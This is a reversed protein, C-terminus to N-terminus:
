QNMEEKLKELHFEVRRNKFRGEATKNTALPYDEGKGYVGVVKEEPLGLEVLKNKTSEARKLSLGQNYTNSGISDTHGEITVVYNNVLIFEKLKELIPIYEDKINWKDFDFNLAREDLVITIEPISIDMEEIELANIRITNERMQTTTLKQFAFSPIALLFLFAVLAIKTSKRAM